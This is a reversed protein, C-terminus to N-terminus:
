VGIRFGISRCTGTSPYDVDVTYEAVSSGGAGFTAVAFGRLPSDSALNCLFNGGDATTVNVQFSRTEPAFIEVSNFGDSYRYYGINPIAVEVPMNVRFNTMNVDAYFGPYPFDHVNGVADELAVVCSGYNGDSSIVIKSDGNASNVASALALIEAEANPNSYSDIFCNLWNSYAADSLYVIFDFAAGTPSYSDLYASGFIQFYGEQRPNAPDPDGVDIVATNADRFSVSYASALPAVGFLLLAILLFKTPM